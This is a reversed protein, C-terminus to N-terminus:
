LLLKRFKPKDPHILFTSLQAARAGAEDAVPNDGIHIISKSQLSDFQYESLQRAKQYLMAYFAPNPKSLGVEDSYLQFSFLEGIGLKDWYQRLSAGRILGTNSLLSLTIGKARLTSLVLPIEKDILQPPYEQFLQSLDQQVGILRERTLQNLDTGLRQAMLLVLELSDINKGVLENIRTCTLDVERILEDVQNLSRGLPNFYHDFYATRERRFNPNSRILTLWVDFSYHRYDM